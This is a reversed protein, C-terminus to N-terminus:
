AVLQDEGQPDTGKGLLASHVESAVEDLCWYSSVVALNRAPKM